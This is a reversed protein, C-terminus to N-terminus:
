KHVRGLIHAPRLPTAAQPPFIAYRFKYDSSENYPNDSLRFEVMALAGLSTRVCIKAGRQAIEFGTAHTQKLKGDCVDFNVASGLDDSDGNDGPALVAGDSPEIYLGSGSYATIGNEQVYPENEHKRLVIDAGRLIEAYQGEDLDFGDRREIDSPALAGTGLRSAARPIRLDVVGNPALSGAAPVTARVHGYLVSPDPQAEFTEKSKFGAQYLEMGAEYASLGVVDPVRPVGPSDGLRPRNKTFEGSKEVQIASSNTGPPNTISRRQSSPEIQRYSMGSQADSITTASLLVVGLAIINAQIRM